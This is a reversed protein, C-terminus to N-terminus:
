GKRGDTGCTVSGVDEEKKGRQTKPRSFHILITKKKEEGTVTPSGKKEGGKMAAHPFPSLNRKEKIGVQEKELGKGEMEKVASSILTFHFPFPEKKKKPSQPRVLMWDKKKKKGHRPFFFGGGGGRKKKRNTPAV